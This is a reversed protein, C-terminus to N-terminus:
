QPNGYNRGLYNQYTKNSIDYQCGCDKCIMHRKIVGMATATSKRLKINSSVCEICRWKPSGNLVAFSTNKHIYPHLVNYVDELLIVDGICYDVMKSLSDESNNLIIDKWFGFGGHDVKEGVGLFQGIYDLKNSNFNFSSRSKRLTDLSRFKSPCQIRHYICRTRLWKIDFNDGNHAIAEDSSEIIKIFEELLKKDNQNKDWTLFQVKDENEWKWCVCIIARENIINEPGINIGYGSKWFFGINPSTEIDFFLRKVVIDETTQEIRNAQEKFQEQKLLLRAEMIDNSSCEWRKALWEKGNKIYVPNSKFKKVIEKVTM